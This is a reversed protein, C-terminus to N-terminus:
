RPVWSPVVIFGGVPCSPGYPSRMVATGAVRTRHMLLDLPGTSVGIAYGPERQGAIKWRPKNCVTGDPRIGRDTLVPGYEAGAPIGGMVVRTRALIRSAHGDVYRWDDVVRLPGVHRLAQDDLARVVCSRYSWAGTVGWSTQRARVCIVRGSGVLLQHWQETTGTIATQWAPRTAARMDARLVQVDWTRNEEGTADPLNMEVAPDIRLRIQPRISYPGLNGRFFTQPAGVAPVTVAPSPAESAAVSPSFSTLAGTLALVLLPILRPM